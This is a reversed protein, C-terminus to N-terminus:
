RRPSNIVGTASFSGKDYINLTKKPSKIMKQNLKEKEEKQIEALEKKELLALYKRKGELKNEHVAVNRKLLELEKELKQVVSGASGQACRLTKEHKVEEEYRRLLNSNEEYKKTNDFLEKQLDIM